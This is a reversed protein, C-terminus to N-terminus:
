DNLRKMRNIYAFTITVGLIPISLSMLIHILQIYAFMKLILCLEIVFKIVVAIIIYSLAVKKNSLFDSFKIVNAFCILNFCNIIIAINQSLGYGSIFNGSQLVQIGLLVAYAYILIKFFINNKDIYRKTAYIILLLYVVLYVISNLLGLISPSKLERLLLIVALITGFITLISQFNLIYVMKIKRM